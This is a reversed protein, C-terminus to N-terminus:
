CSVDKKEGIEMEVSWKYFTTEEQKIVMQIRYVEHLSRYQSRLAYVYVFDYESVGLYTTHPLLIIM